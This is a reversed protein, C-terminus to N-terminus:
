VINFSFQPLFCLYKAGLKRKSATFINRHETTASASLCLNHKFNISIKKVVIKTIELLFQNDTRKYRLSFYKFLFKLAEVFMSHRVKESQSLNKKLRIICIDMKQKINNNIEIFAFPVPTIRITSNISWCAIAINIKELIFILNSNELALKRSLLM